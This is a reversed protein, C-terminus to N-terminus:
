TITRKWAYYLGAGAFGFLVMTGVCLFLMM